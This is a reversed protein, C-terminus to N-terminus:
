GPSAATAEGRHRDRKRDLGFAQQDPRENGVFVALLHEVDIAVGLHHSENRAALQGLDLTDSRAEFPVGVCLLPQAEAGPGDHCALALEQDAVDAEGDELRGAVDLEAVRETAPVPTAPIGGLRRSGREVGHEGMECRASDNGDHVCPIDRRLSDRFPDPHRSELRDVRM